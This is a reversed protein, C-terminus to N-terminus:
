QLLGPDLTAVQKEELFKKCSVFSTIILIILGPILIYKKMNHKM